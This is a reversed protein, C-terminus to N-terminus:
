KFTSSSFDVSVGAVFKHGCWGSRGVGTLATSWNAAPDSTNIACAVKGQSSGHYRADFTVAKYTYSAGINWTNYSAFKFGRAVGTFAQASDVYSWGYQVNARGLYVHGFAGSISFGTDPVSLKANLETYLARAKYNNWNPAYYAAGGLAIWDNLQWTAKAYLEYFSPDHSTTPTGGSLAWTAVPPTGALYYRTTNGPYLYDIVGFDLTLPGWVPRIGAYVDVEASPQTPLKVNWPQVGAYLWGYRLEAYATASPGNATQSIGRSVYNSQLKVGFAYDFGAGFVDFNPEPWAILPKPPPPADAKKGGLDAAYAGASLCLAAAFTTAFTKM